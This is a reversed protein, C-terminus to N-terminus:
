IEITASDPEDFPSLIEKAKAKALRIDFSQAVTIRIGRGAYAHVITSSNGSFNGLSALVPKLHDQKVFWTPVAKGIFHPKIEHVIGVFQALLMPYVVLKKVEVFTILQHNEVCDWVGPPQSTPVAGGKVIGVDVCYRGPDHASRVVLNSHIEFESADRTIQIRTFNWPHGRTSTKVAFVGKAAPPNVIKVEYKRSRYHEATAVTAALELAKSQNTSLDYLGQRNRKLFQEVASKVLNTDM